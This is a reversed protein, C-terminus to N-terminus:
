KQSLLSIVKQDAAPSNHAEKPILDFSENRHTLRLKQVFSNPLEEIVTTVEDRRWVAFRRGFVPKGATLERNFLHLSDATIVLAIEKSIGEKRARRKTMVSHAGAFGFVLAAVLLFAGVVTGLMAALLVAPFILGIAFLCGLGAEMVMGGFKLKVDREFIGAAEIREGVVAEAEDLIPWASRLLGMAELAEIAARQVPIAGVLSEKLPQIAREDKLKGLAAAAAVRVEWAPDKLLWLLHEVTAPNRLEGLGQAVGARVYVKKHAVAEALPIAAAEDGLLGLAIAAEARVQDERDNGLVWILMEVARKDGLAGLAKACELRIRWHVNTQERLKNVLHVGAQKDGMRGLAQAARVASAEKGGSIAFTANQGNLIDIVGQVLRSDGYEKLVDGVPYGLDPEVGFYGNLVDFLPRIAAPDKLERLAAVAADRTQVPLLYGILARVDRRAKCQQIIEQDSM